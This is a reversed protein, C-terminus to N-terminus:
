PHEQLYRSHLTILLRAATPNITWKGGVREWRCVSFRTTGLQEALQGQTLLMDHRLARVDFPTM